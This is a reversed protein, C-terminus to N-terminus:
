NRSKVIKVYKYVASIISISMHFIWKLSLHIQSPFTRFM